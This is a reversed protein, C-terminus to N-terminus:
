IKQGHKERKNNTYKVLEDLQKSIHTRRADECERCWFMSYTKDIENKCKGEKPGFGICKMIKM